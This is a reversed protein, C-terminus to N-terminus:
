VLESFCDIEKLCHDYQYDSRVNWLKLAEFNMLRGKKIVCFIHSRRIKLSKLLSIITWKKRRRTVPKRVKSSTYKLPPRRRTAQSAPISAPTGGTPAKCWSTSRPRSPRRRSWRSFCCFLFIFLVLASWMQKIADRNKVFNSRSGDFYQLWDFLSITEKQQSVGDLFNFSFDFRSFKKPDTKFRSFFLIFCDRLFSDSQSPVLFYHLLLVFFSPDFRLIPSSSCNGSMGGDIHSISLRPAWCLFM